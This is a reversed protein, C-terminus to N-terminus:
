GRRDLILYELSARRATGELGVSRLLAIADSVKGLDGRTGTTFLTLASLIAEGLKDSEVLAALREPAHTAGFGDAVARAAESPAPVTQTQGQAVSALFREMDGRLAYDRAIIEYDETLLGMRFAIGGAEGGLRMRALEAGHIRSIPVEVEAFSLAEWLNPLVDQIDSKRKSKLATELAQVVDVRDWVGGSAAAKRETYLGLLQNDSVAGTRALREGAVLQAKWGSSARLDSQAFALPLNATSIPEGIAEFLRFNLPTIPDPAPLNPEGEFLEPDLFRALLADEADSVLGLARANNLMLVAADWQEDRAMCFVRATYTPTLDPSDQMIDCLKDEQGILLAV